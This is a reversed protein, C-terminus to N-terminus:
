YAGQPVPAAMAGRAVDVPRGFQPGAGPAGPAGPPGIGPMGQQMQGMASGPLMAPNMLLSDLNDMGFRNGVYRLVAAPDFGMQALPMIHQELTSFFDLDQKRRIATDTAYDQDVEVQVEFAELKTTTRRAADNHVLEIEGTPQRVPLMEDVLPDELENYLMAEAIRMRFDTVADLMDQLRQQANGALITSETATDAIKGAGGLTQTNGGLNNFWGNLMQEAPAYFEFRPKTDLTTIGDPEGTICQWNAAKVFRNATDEQGKRAVVVTKAEEADTIMKESVIRCSEHLDQLLTSYPLGVAEGPIDIFTLKEYPSRRCGVFREAKLFKETDPRQALFHVIWTEGSLDYVAIRWVQITPVLDHADGAEPTLPTVEGDEKAGERKEVSGGIATLAEEKTMVSSALEPPMAAMDEPTAGFVQYEAAASKVIDYRDGEWRISGASLASPDQAWNDWAILEVCTETQTYEHSEVTAMQESAAHGIRVVACPAILASEVACRELAQLHLRRRELELKRELVYAEGLTASIPVVKIECRRALYPRLALNAEAILNRPRKVADGNGYHRGALEQKNRAYQERTWKLQERSADVAKAIKAPSLLSPM